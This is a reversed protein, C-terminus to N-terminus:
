SDALKRRAAEIKATLEKVGAGVPNVEVAKRCMELAAEYEQALFKHKALMAYMKSEVAIPLSWHSKELEAVVTEFYPSATKNDRYLVAAWDYMADCVFVELPRDFNFPTHHIGQKILHLILTLAAPIDGVDFLWIAVQVAISNPYNEGATVYGNVFAMYQKLMTNKAAAKAELTKLQKLQNIDALMAAKYHELSGPEETLEDKEGEPLYPNDGGKAAEALQADKIRDLPNAWM